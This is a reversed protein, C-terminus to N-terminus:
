ELFTKLIPAPWPIDKSPTQRMALNFRALALLSDQHRLLLAKFDSDIGLLQPQNHKLAELLRELKLARSSEADIQLTQYLADREAEPLAECQSIFPHILNSIVQARDYTAHAQWFTQEDAALEFRKDLALGFDSIFVQEGDTLLNALHADLHLIGQQNLFELTQDVQNLLSALNRTQHQEFWSLLSHPIHELFLQIEFPAQDRDALYQGIQESQNWYQLHRQRSEPSVQRWKAQAPMIRYHYLLPFGSHQNALVWNSIRLHSVLERYAGFGASGIGYHYYIPLHYHNRTSFAQAQELATLPIRKVFVKQGAITLTQNQGWGQSSDAQALRDLIQQDSLLSLESSLSYYGAQRQTLDSLFPQTM